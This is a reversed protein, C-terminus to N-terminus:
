DNKSLEQEIESKISNFTRAFLQWQDKDTISSSYKHSIQNKKSNWCIRAKDVGDIFFTNPYKRWQQLVGTDVRSLIAGPLKKKVEQVELIKGKEYEISAETRKISEQINRLTENQRDWRRFTAQGNRKDNVPGGNARKVDAFHAKLKDDFLSRKKELSGELIKLRKSEIPKM